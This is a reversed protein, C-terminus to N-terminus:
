AAYARAKRGLDERVDETYAAELAELAQELEPTRVEPVKVVLHVYLDGSVGRRAIGKGRVRLTAGTQTGPPVRVKVAGELTPVEVSAGRVAEPVTVPVDLHLDEGERRFLHHPRVELTLLLDGAPGQPSPAGKGKLRLTEGDRVGPPIRVQLSRGAQFTLSRAGGLAATRFDLGLTARTDPVGGPGGFGGFGGFGGSRATRGSRRGGGGFLSGLLDDIDVAGGQYGQGFGGGGMMSPDFGPQLSVDGYQDYLARKEPDSLVEFARNADKFRQEAAPDDPNRDPHSEKAVKRFAKKIEDAGADRSVGLVQYLDSSM